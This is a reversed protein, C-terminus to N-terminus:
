YEQGTTKPSNNEVLQKRRTKRSENASAVFSVPFDCGNLRTTLIRPNPLLPEHTRIWRLIFKKTNEFQVSHVGNNKDAM